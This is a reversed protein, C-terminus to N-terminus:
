NSLFVKYTMHGLFQSLLLQTIGATVLIRNKSKIRLPLYEEVYAKIIDQNLLTVEVGQINVLAAMMLLNQGYIYRKRNPKKSHDYFVSGKLVKEKRSRYIFTDDII